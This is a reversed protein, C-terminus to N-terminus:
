TDRTPGHCHPLSRSRSFVDLKVNKLPSCSHIEPDSTNKIYGSHDVVLKGCSVHADLPVGLPWEPNRV